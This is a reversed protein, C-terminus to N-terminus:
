FLARTELVDLPWALIVQSQYDDTEAVIEVVPLLLALLGGLLLKRELLHGRLHEFSGCSAAAEIVPCVERIDRTGAGAM